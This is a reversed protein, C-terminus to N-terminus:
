HPSLKGVGPGGRPSPEGSGVQRGCVLGTGDILGDALLTQGGKRYRSEVVPWTQEAPNYGAWFLAPCRWCAPVPLLGRHAQILGTQGSTASCAQKGCRFM